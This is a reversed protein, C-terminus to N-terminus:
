CNSNYLDFGCFVMTTYEIKQDDVAVKQGVSSHRILSVKLRKELFVQRRPAPWPVYKGWSRVAKKMNGFTRTFDRGDVGRVRRRVCVPVGM